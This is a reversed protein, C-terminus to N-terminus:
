SVIYEVFKSMKTNICFIGKLVETIKTRKWASTKKFSRSIIHNLKATSNSSLNIVLPGNESQHYRTKSNKSNELPFKHNWQCFTWIENLKTPLTRSTPYKLKRQNKRNTKLFINPFFVYVSWKVKNVFYKHTGGLWRCYIRYTQVDKFRKKLNISIIGKCLNIFTCLSVHVRHDRKNRQKKLSMWFSLRILTSIIIHRKRNYDYNSFFLCHLLHSNSSWQSIYRNM